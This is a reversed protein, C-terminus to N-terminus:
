QGCLWRLAAARSETIARLLDTQESTLSRYPRGFASFEQEVPDPQHGNKRGKDAQKVAPTSTSPSVGGHATHGAGRHHPVAKMRSEWLQASQLATQLEKMSRLRLTEPIKLPKGIRLRLLLEESSFREDYPPLLKILSLAWVCVGLTEVLWGVLELLERRWHGLPIALLGREQESFCALLGEQELWQGLETAM